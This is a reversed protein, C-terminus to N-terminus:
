KEWPYKIGMRKRYEERRQLMARVAQQKSEKDLPVNPIEEADMNKPLIVAPRIIGIKKHSGEDGYANGGSECKPLGCIIVKLYDARWPASIHSLVEHWVTFEREPFESREEQASVQTIVHYRYVMNSPRPYAVRLDGIKAECNKPGLFRKCRHIEYMWAAHKNVRDLLDTWSTSDYQKPTSGHEGIEVLHYHPM